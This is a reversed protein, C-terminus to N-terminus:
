QDGKEHLSYLFKHADDSSRVVCVQGSWAQHWDQQLTNLKGTRTKVEVLYNRERYGVCLDPVGKGLAALSIVTAGHKRFTSVIERQNDDVRSFRSFV